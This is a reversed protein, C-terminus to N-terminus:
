NQDSRILTSVIKTKIGSSKEKDKKKKKDKSKKKKDGKDKLKQMNQEM